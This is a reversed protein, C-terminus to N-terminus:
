LSSASVALFASTIKCITVLLLAGLSDVPEGLSIPRAAWQLLILLLWLTSIIWIAMFLLISVHITIDECLSYEVSFSVVSRCGCAWFTPELLCFWAMLLFVRSLAHRPPLSPSDHDSPLVRAELYSAREQSSASCALAGHTLLRCASCWARHGKRCTHKDRFFVNVCYWVVYRVFYLHRIKMTFEIVFVECNLNWTWLCGLAFHTM